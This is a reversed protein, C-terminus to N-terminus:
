LSGDSTVLCGDDLSGSGGASLSLPDHARTSLFPLSPLRAQMIYNITYQESPLHDGFLSLVAPTLPTNPALTFSKPRHKEFASRPKNVASNLVLEEFGKSSRRKMGRQQGPSEPAAELITPINLFRKHRLTTPTGLGTQSPTSLPSMRLSTVLKENYRDGPPTASSPITSASLVGSLGAVSGASPATNSTHITEDGSDRRSDPPTITRSNKTAVSSGTLSHSESVSEQSLSM